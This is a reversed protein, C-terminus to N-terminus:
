RPLDPWHRRIREILNAPNVPSETDVDIVPCLGFPRDFEALLEASVTKM